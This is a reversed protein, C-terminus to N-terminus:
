KLKFTTTLFEKVAKLSESHAQANYGVTAGREVCSDASINFPKKTQSNIIQGVPNEELRVGV